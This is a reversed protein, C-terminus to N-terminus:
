RGGEEKGGKMRRVEREDERKVGEMKGGDKRRGKRGGKLEEGERGCRM